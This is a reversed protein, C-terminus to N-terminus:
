TLELRRALSSQFCQGHYAARVKEFVGLDPYGSRLTLPDSVADKALYIRGQHDRVIADLEKMLALTDRRLPFDLALTYGEMPFSLPGAAPGLRKLVALMSGCGSASTRQLIAHLGSRSAELPLVCQHQVFGRRGYLRNWERIADLPFFFAEFPVIRPQSRRAGRRFYLTNFLRVSLRNLLWGPANVPLTRATKAPTELPRERYGAPLEARGAAEGAFLLSRGLRSKGALCDLWAVTHTVAHSAEFHAMAEDLNQAVLTQQRIWATEIPILRVTVTLIIGTLGMGGLTAAFLEPHEQRSCTLVRGDGVLLDLADVHRGFSGELHHNKGHIDAAAMGGLSVQATGPVVPVFWGAPVIREILDSLLMGAECIARGQDLDLRRIRNMATTTVTMAPNVAADGYSRGNGRAILSPSDALLGSLEDTYRPRCLQAEVRPFNGWGALKM